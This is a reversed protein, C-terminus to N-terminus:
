ETKEESKIQPTNILLELAKEHSSAKALLFGLTEKSVYSISVAFSLAKSYYEKLLKLTEPKDIVLDNFVSSSKSDYAAVPIFGVSFPLINLKSMINTANESIAQGKKVISKPEKIEIKGAKIEIKIGLSGLESVVPGAVLETPGPEIIIEMEAIQGVKAKVPSRSDALRGSLEFADVNSFLVAIDEKVYQKLEKINNKSSGDIARILLNKKVVLTTVEKSLGKKIKQFQRSPLSKISAFMITNNKDILDVLKKVNEVKEKSVHTKPKEKAM